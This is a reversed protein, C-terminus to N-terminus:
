CAAALMKGDPSFAPSGLHDIAGGFTVVADRRTFHWVVVSIGSNEKDKGVFALLQGNPSFVVPSGPNPRAGQLTGSHELRMEVEAAMVGPATVVSLLLWMLRM